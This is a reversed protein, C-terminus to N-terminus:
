ARARWWDSASETWTMDWCWGFGIAAITLNNQNCYTLHNKILNANATPYSPNGLDWAHWTYWVAEGAGQTWNNYQNRVLRDIRLANDTYPAPPSSETVIVSYASNEQMLLTMGKRYGSSHSEGPINVWMQKVLALYQAPIKDYKDVVTHDAIIQQAQLLVNVFFIAFLLIIIKKM